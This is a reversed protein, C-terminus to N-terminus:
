CPQSIQLAKTGESSSAGWDSSTPPNHDSHLRCLVEFYAEPFKLRWCLNALGRDLKKAMRRYGQTRHWTLHGGVTNLELLGCFDLVRYFSEARSQSFICGKLEGPSNLGFFFNELPSLRMGIELWCGPLTLMWASPVYTNGFLTGLLPTPAPTFGQAPGSTTGWNLILPVWYSM